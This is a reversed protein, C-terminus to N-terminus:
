RRKGSTAKGFTATVSNDASISVTCTATTIGACAGGWGSFTTRSGAKATLTVSTAVSKPYDTTCSSTCSKAPTSFSVSGSGNITLSLRNVPEIVTVNQKTVGSGSTASASASIEYTGLAHPAPVGFDLTTTASQGPAVNLSSAGFAKTWGTPATAGLAFAQSACSSGDNNKVTVNFRATSGYETSTGTPSATITPAATVCPIAGYNVAVTMATPTVGTVTVAVNSYPDTWTQGVQLASDSFSTTAPTFDLLHSKGGTSADQYHILAGTFLTSSLASDYLGSNQRSEIWLWAENGTGRRVKLAKVGAPRGEYNQITYTGSTEVVQYNSGQGLWGLQDAAHSAAYFGYNWAGMISHPDGYDSLTGASGVAGLAEAGFDRSAAHSMGLNHGM